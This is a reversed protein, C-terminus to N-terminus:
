EAVPQKVIGWEEKIDVRDEPFFDLYNSLLGTDLVAVYIGQGSNAATEANVMDINWPDPGEPIGEDDTLRLSKIPQTKYRL